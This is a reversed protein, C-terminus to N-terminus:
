LREGAIVGATKMSRSGGFGILRGRDVDECGSLDVFDDLGFLRGFTRGSRSGAGAAILAIGGCGLCRGLFGWATEGVVVM